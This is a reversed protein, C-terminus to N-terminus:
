PATNLQLNQLILQDLFNKCTRILNFKFRQVTCTGLQSTQNECLAAHCSLCGGGVRSRFFKSASITRSKIRKKKTNPNGLTELTGLSEPGQSM